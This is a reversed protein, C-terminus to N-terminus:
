KLMVMKKNQLIVRGNIDKVWLRYFYIGSAAQFGREDKGDWEVHYIGTERFGNVLTSVKQGLVNFVQLKVDGSRALEFKINTNPNFPNPYNQSLAYKQPLQDLEKNAHSNVYNKDGAIIKFSNRQTRFSYVSNSNMDICQNSTVDILFCLYDPPVDFKEWSLTVPKNGTKNDVFFEWTHGSSLSSRIDSSLKQFDNLDSSTLYLNLMNGPSLPDLEDFCDLSEEASASAGIFNFADEDTGATVILQIKWKIASSEKDIQSKSTALSYSIVDKMNVIGTTKNYIAYGGFPKVVTVQKWKGASQQWISGIKSNDLITLTAAFSYPWSVLNWGPSLTINDFTGLPNSFAQADHDVLNIPKDYSHQIFYGKGSIMTTEDTFSGDQYSQLRWNMYNGNEILQEGFQTSPKITGSYPIGITYYRNPIEGTPYAGHFVFSDIASSNVKVSVGTRGNQSPFYDTAVANAAKIRYWIGEPAVLSGPVSASYISGNGIMGMSYGVVNSIKGYYLIVEPSTGEVTVSITLNTNQNVPPTPSVILTEQKIVPARLNTTASSENSTESIGILNSATVRYYYTTNASLLSDQYSTVSGDAQAIQSFGTASSLSRYIQYYTPSGSISPSWSLNIQKYSVPTVTLNSPASPVSGSNSNVPFISRHVSKGHVGAYLYGVSDVCLASYYSFVNLPLGYGIDEWGLGPTYRNVRVGAGDYPIAYIRGQNDFTLHLYYSNSSLVEWFNGNNASKYIQQDGATVFIDNLQNIAISWSGFTSDALGYNVISWNDGNNVSKCVSNDTTIFIDDNGNIAIARVKSVIGENLTVWNNGMDTSRYVEFGDGSIGFLHGQSNIVFDLFSTELSNNPPHTWSNGDDNSIYVGTNYGGAYMTGSIDKGFSYVGGLLGASPGEWSLGNDSSVLIGSGTGAYLKGNKNPFLRNISMATIGLNATTWEAGNTTTGYLGGTTGAFVEGANRLELTQVDLDALGFLSWSLGGNNSYFIGSSTGAYLDGAASVKLVNVSSSVGTLLAWNAGFTTSKYIGSPTGAYIHGNSDSALTQIKKDTLGTNVVTWTTGKDTSRFMGNGDSTGAFFYNNSIILASVTTNAILGTPKFWSNGSNMSIVIGSQYYGVLVTDKNLAVSSPFIGTVGTNVLSWSIGNNSSRYLVDSGPGKSAFIYSANSALFGIQSCPLSSVISWNLGNDVSKYFGGILSGAYLDNDKSLLATIHGGYPGNTPQWIQGSASEFLLMAFLVFHIIPKM